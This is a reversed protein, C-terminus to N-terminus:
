TLGPFALALLGSVVYRLTYITDFGPILRTGPILNPPMGLEAWDADPISAARTRSLSM